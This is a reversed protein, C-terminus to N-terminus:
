PSLMVAPPSAVAGPKIKQSRQASASRWFYGRAVMSVTFPAVPPSEVTCPKCRKGSFTSACFGSRTKIPKPM